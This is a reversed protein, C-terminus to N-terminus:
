WQCRRWRRGTPPATACTSALKMMTKECTGAHSRNAKVIAPATVQKNRTTNRQSEPCVGQREITSGLPVQELGRHRCRVQGNPTPAVREVSMSGDRLPGTIGRNIRASSNKIVRFDFSFGHDGKEGPAQMRAVSKTTDWPKTMAFERVIPRRRLIKGAIKQPHRNAADQSAHEM